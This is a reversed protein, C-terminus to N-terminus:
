IEREREWVFGGIEREWFRLRRNWIERLADERWHWSAMAGVRSGSRWTQGSAPSGLEGASAVWGWQIQLLILAVHDGPSSGLGSWGRGASRGRTRQMWALEDFTADDVDVHTFNLPEIQLEDWIASVTKSSRLQVGGSSESLPIMGLSHLKAVWSSALVRAWSWPPSETAAPILEVDAEKESRQQCAQHTLFISSHSQHTLFTSRALLYLDLICTALYCWWTTWKRTSKCFHCTPKDM